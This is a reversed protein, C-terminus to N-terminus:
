RLREDLERLRRAITTAALETGAASWHPNAALFLALPEKAARFEPVLDVFPLELEACLQAVRRSPRDWDAREPPVNSQALAALFSPRDALIPDPAYAVLLRSGHRAIRDRMAAYIQQLTRWAQDIREDPEVFRDVISLRVDASTLRRALPASPPEAAHVVAAPAAEDSGVVREATAKERRRERLLTLSYYSEVVLRSHEHLFRLAPAIWSERVPRNRVHLEGDDRLEVTPRSAEHDDFNGDLDNDCFLVLTWDPDYALGDSELRVLEQLASYGAVGFNITEVGPLEQELRASIMQSNEVGYGWTVSDGLCLLRRAGAPKCLEHERDRLGKSNCVVRVDFSGRQVFRLDASPRCRKGAEPDFVFFMGRTMSSQGLGCARAAAEAVALGLLLGAVILAVRGALLRAGAM